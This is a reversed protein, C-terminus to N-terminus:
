TRKEDLFLPDLSCKHPQEMYDVIQHNFLCQGMSRAMDDSEDTNAEQILLEIEKSLFAKTPESLKRQPQGMLANELFKYAENLDIGNLEDPFPKEENHIIFNVAAAAEFECLETLQAKKMLELWQSINNLSVSDCNRVMEQGRKITTSVYHFAANTHNQKGYKSAEVLNKQSYGHKNLHRQVKLKVERPLNPAKPVTEEVSDKPKPQFQSEEM